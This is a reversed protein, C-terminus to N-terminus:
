FLRAQLEPQSSIITNLSLFGRLYSCLKGMTIRYLESADTKAYYRNLTRKRITLAARIAPHYSPASPADEGAENDPEPTTATPTAASATVTSTRSANAKSSAATSSKRHGARHSNTQYRPPPTTPRTESTATATAATAFVSDIHDMVPIVM